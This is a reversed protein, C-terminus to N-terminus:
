RRKGMGIGYKFGIGHDKDEMLSGLDVTNKKVWDDDLYRISMEDIHSKLLEVSSTPRKSNQSNSEM